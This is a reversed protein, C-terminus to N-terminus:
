SLDLPFKYRRRHVYYWTGISAGAILWIICRGVNFFPYPPQNPRGMRSGPPWFICVPGGRINGEPVFGFDRSDGSGAHNDGLALYSKPPIKLGFLRIKDKNLEGNPLLPPGNDIFPDYSKQNHSALQKSKEREIFSLLTPDGKKFIPAGMLYLDGDRFYAYRAPKIYQQQSQPSYRTDFEMGLNFLLQIRGPDFRYLPSSPPLESTIGQWKVTYAKGYYFEYTGNPVDPLYPFFQNNTLYKSPIGYRHAFGKEVIFRGTYLNDFLAKLHAEKLPIISTSVGVLPRLRNREDRGMKARLLSPHHKLELYLIGEDLENPDQNTLQIVQDKTLLRAKAFNDIGWLSAYTMDPNQTLFHPFLEGKAQSPSLAWLKAVPENMQRLIIPSYLHSHSDPEVKGQFSTFPIHEIKDLQPLQLEPSIDHGNEDIGYIRGGYFYLTDGPKGMLRKILLKKGPFIYFYVTDADKFDMDEVTFIFIGNRQVLKPDFYVHKTSFPVNIGFVTKSVSLRDQEKFTPRMSGTPIEYLEFWMQRILLAIALAIAIGLFFDKVREFLNKQLHHKLFEEVQKALACAKKKDKVLIAQQLAIFTNKLQDSLASSLTSKRQVFLHHAQLLIKKSKTLSYTWM